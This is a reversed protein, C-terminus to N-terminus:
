YLKKFDRDFEILLYKICYNLDYTKLLEIEIDIIIISKSSQMKFWIGIRYKIM